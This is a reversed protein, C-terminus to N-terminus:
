PGPNVKILFNRIAAKISAAAKGAKKKIDRIMSTEKSKGM